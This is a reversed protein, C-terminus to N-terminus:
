KAVSNLNRISILELPQVYPWSIASQLSAQDEFYLIYSCNNFFQRIMTRNSSQMCVYLAYM